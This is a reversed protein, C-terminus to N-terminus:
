AEGEGKILAIADTVSIGKEAVAALLDRMAQEDKLTNLNKLEEEAAALQAKLEEVRTTAATIQEDISLKAKNRSGKTRPMTSEEKDVGSPTTIIGIAQFVPYLYSSGFCRLAKPGKIRRGAANDYAVKVTAKTIPNAKRDIRVVGGHISFTFPMGRATCFTHGQLSLMAEWLEDFTM